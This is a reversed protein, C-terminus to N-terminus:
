DYECDHRGFQNACRRRFPRQRHGIRERKGLPRRETHLRCVEGPFGGRFHVTRVDLRVQRGHDHPRSPQIRPGAVHSFRAQNRKGAQLPKGSWIDVAGFTRPPINDHAKGIKPHPITSGSPRSGRYGDPPGAKYPYRRFWDLVAQIERAKAPSVFLNTDADTPM